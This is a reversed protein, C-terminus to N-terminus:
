GAMKAHFVNREETLTRETLPLTPASAATLSSVAAKVQHIKKYQYEPRPVLDIVSPSGSGSLMFSLSGFNLFNQIFGVQHKQIDQVNVLDISTKSDKLFVSKDLLVVRRDTLIVTNLYYHFVTLFQRHIIAHLAALAFVMLYAMWHGQQVLVPLNTYLLFLIVLLGPMSVLTPLISIWHKRFACIVEEGDLQGKFHQREDTM